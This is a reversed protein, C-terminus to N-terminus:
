LKGYLQTLSKVPPGALYIDFGTQLDPTLGGVVHHFKTLEQTIGRTVFNSDIVTLWLEMNEPWPNPIKPSAALIKEDSMALNETFTIHEGINHQTTVAWIM